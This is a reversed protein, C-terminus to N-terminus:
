REELSQWIRSYALGFEPGHADFHHSESFWSLAHAFEHLFVHYQAYPSLSKEVRILFYPGDKSKLLSCDGYRDEPMNWRRVKVPWVPPVMIRLDRAVAMIDRTDRNM